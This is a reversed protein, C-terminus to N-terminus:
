AEVKDRSDSSAAYALARWAKLARGRLAVPMVRSAAVGGALAKFLRRFPLRQAKKVARYLPLSSAEFPRREILRAFNAGSRAYKAMLLKATELGLHTVTNDIHVIPFKDKAAFAWDVDEWGWGVFGEDFPCEELVSRHVMVNSSFVYRGPSMCRNLASVCEFKEAHWRHLAYEKDRPAHQLSYGGVVVAPETLKDMANLYGDIFRPGDPIMDADLLLIWDARAYRAAANRAAARGCNQWCSVIRVAARTHGAGVQMQALLEHDCSGDDYVIIEALASSQCRALADVLMSADCRWTPIVVSLRAASGAWYINDHLTELRNPATATEPIFKAAHM